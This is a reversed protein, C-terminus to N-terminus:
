RPGLICPQITQGEYGYWYVATVQGHGNTHLAGDMVLGTSTGDVAEGAHERFSEEGDALRYGTLIPYGYYGLDCAQGVSPAPMDVAWYVFHTQKSLYRNAGGEGANFWIAVADDKGKDLPPDLAFWRAGARTVEIRPGLRKVELHMAGPPAVEGRRPEEAPPQLHGPGSWRKYEDLIDAARTFPRYVIRAKWGYQRGVECPRILYHFDWAPSRGGGGTPSQSFRITQRDSISAPDFLLAWAMNRSRGYYFPADFRYPSLDRALGPWNSRDLARWAAPEFSAVHTSRVDHLPSLATIWRTPADPDDAARGLFFISRDETESIYSAWFM